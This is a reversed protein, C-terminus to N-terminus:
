NNLWKHLIRELDSQIIPKPLYDNMGSEFCKEKEGLLIGATLAIIPVKESDELKRIEYAADYGNKNPMQVDMLILDPKEKKYQNIAEKGDNAEFVTCNAIIKKVITKALFMNIKNDEVILIKKDSLIKATIIIDEKDTNALVSDTNKKPNTKKLKITFFFDSGEGFKSKLELKSDMLVLLQNSITLGLGTGGFKRSTSNDEQIFSNFIKQNNKEKIGIGTDKVSFNISSENENLSVIESIDLRIEGYDTFKLSNGLLNVLIQKLKISDALIYQPVNNDINLSLKIKKQIAQYKFLDIVHNTLEFLNIEEIDLEMKGSEIKSFDLVDNVIQMLINASENVTSMYELKDDILNSKMLLNTFGIIGNLPTRIEHSMKALFDSKAKNAAEAQEKAKKLEIEMLKQETIDLFSIVIESINGKDDIDPFGNVLLWAIENTELRNVGVTINKIAQKGSIIQNVPYKEIPMVSYDENLFEWPPNVAMKGKMQKYSLGLLETAKRNSVIISTDSAYIVIGADLNNLLGRYREKSKQLAYGSQKISTIDRSLCIFHIDEDISEQMPAISLEFWHLGDPFPLSYQRGTSFGKQSAEQIASLCLNAVDPPLVESFTKSLFLNEHMASLDDRRSHYNYIRGDIDVEFLLDPIADFIAEMKKHVKQFEEEAKKRKTIDTTTGIYGVIKKEVNIEPIAQGMVWTISGDPRVFRYESVSKKKQRTAIEWVNFLGKRDEKHVASLWGNEIAEQFSLGSIQCWYSNVYTTNGSADMRFIGVPSIETLTHYRKESKFVSEEAKKRLSEKEFNELAFSVDATAEELLAIEEADFFNKESAYFSFSGIVKGFKKIPVAILSFYGRRLAEERWPLMQLDKEIDNCIVYKGERIAISAPRRGGPVNDDISLIEISSLYNHDEGAIMVPIVKKTDFDIMGIWAMRFKGIGVAIACAESFLTQEDNSRVIMKNIQSIFLYLRNAKILKQKAGIRETIDTIIGHCIVTGEPEVVPLSNVEHWVLGKIPHMYRYQCKLPVLKSKTEFISQTVYDLDDPHILSFIKNADNEIAAHAFGYIEDIAKSAYPYCLSGDKNQRMSYILGPSTAAIKAFKNQEEKLNEIVKKKEIIDRGIGYIFKRSVTITITWQITVIEGNKKIFRNEFNISTQGQSLLEIERDTKEVDDPHIFTIVPKALLEEKTYGLIKIFAPNIKKVSGDMGVICVLDQSEKLYFEFDNIIQKDKLLSHVILEQDKIKNLLDDYTQKEEKMDM